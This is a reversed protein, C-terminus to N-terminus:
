NWSKGQGLSSVSVKGHRALDCAIVGGIRKAMLDFVWSRGLQDFGLYITREPFARPLQAAPPPPIHQQFGAAM